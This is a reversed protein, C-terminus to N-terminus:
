EKCVESRIKKNTERPWIAGDMSVIRKKSKSHRRGEINRGSVEYKLWRGYASKKGGKNKSELM